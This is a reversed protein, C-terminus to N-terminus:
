RVMSVAQSFVTHPMFTTLTMVWRNKASNPTTGFNSASFSFYQKPGPSGIGEVWRSLKGIPIM